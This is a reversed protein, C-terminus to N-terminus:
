VVLLTEAYTAQKRERGNTVCLFSAVMALTQISDSKILEWMFARLGCIQIWRRSIKKRTRDAGSVSV